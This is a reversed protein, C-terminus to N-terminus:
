TVSEFQIRTENQIKEKTAGKTDRRMGEGSAVSGPAMAETPDVARVLGGGVGECTRCTLKGCGVAYSRAVSSPPPCPGTSPPLRRHGAPRLHDRPVEAAPAFAAANQAPRATRPAQRHRPAHFFAVPSVVALAVLVQLKRYICNIKYYRAPVATDHTKHYADDAVNVPSQRRAAIVAALGASDRIRRRFKLTLKQIEIEGDSNRLTRRFRSATM